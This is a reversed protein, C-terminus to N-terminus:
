VLSCNSGDSLSKTDATGYVVTLVTPSQHLSNNRNFDDNNPKYPPNYDTTVRSHYSEEENSRRKGLCITRMFPKVYNRFGDRFQDNCINYLIPNSASNSYLMVYSLVSCVEFATSDTDLFM